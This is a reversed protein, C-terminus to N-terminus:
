KCERDCTCCDHGCGSSIFWDHAGISDAIQEESCFVVDSVDYQKFTETDAQPKNVQMQTVEKGM